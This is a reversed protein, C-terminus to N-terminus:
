MSLNDKSQPSKSDAEFDDKSVKPKRSIMNKLNHLSISRRFSKHKEISERSLEKPSSSEVQSLKTPQPQPQSQPQPQQQQQPQSQSQSQLRQLIDTNRKKISGTSPSRMLQRRTQRNSANINGDENQTDLSHKNNSDSVHDDKKFSIPSQESSFAVFETKSEKIPSSQPDMKDKRHKGFFPINSLFHKLKQRTGQEKNKNEEAGESKPKSKAEEFSTNEERKKASQLFARDSHRRM